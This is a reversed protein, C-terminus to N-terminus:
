QQAIAAQRAHEIITAWQSAAKGTVSMEHRSGDRFVLCLWTSKGPLPGQGKARIVEVTVLDSLPYAFHQSGVITKTLRLRHTTLELRCGMTSYYTGESPPTGPPVPRYRRYHGMNAKKLQREVGRVAPQAGVFAAPVAAPPPGMPPPPPPAPDIRVEVKPPSTSAKPGGADPADAGPAPAPREIKEPEPRAPLRVELDGDTTRGVVVVRHTRGVGLNLVSGPRALRAPVGEIELDLHDPHHEVVAGTVTTGAPHDVLFRDVVDPEAVEPGPAVAVLAAGEAVALEPDSVTQVPRYFRDALMAAVLPVKSSGGVLVVRDVDGWSLSAEAVTADCCALTEEVLPRILAEFGARDLDYLLDSFPAWDEHSPASSLQHKFKRCFDELELAPRLLRARVKPDDEEFARRGAALAAVLEEAGERALVDQRVVQDFSSGGVDSLGNENLVQPGTDTIEIVAVDFTGGGLDYIVLREGPVTPRDVSAFRAAAVPEAVLEVEEFGALGAAHRMLDRRHGEYAAPVTVVASRVEEGVTAEALGRLWGLFGGVLEVPTFGREGLSMPEAEGVRRKFQSQYPSSRKVNEAASGWLLGGDGHLVVSSPVSASGSVPEKVRVLSGDSRRVVVSSWCTGFDVGAVPGDVM